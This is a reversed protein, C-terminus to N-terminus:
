GPRRPADDAAGTGARRTERLARVRGFVLSVLSVLLCVLGVMFAHYSGGLEVSLSFAAAAGILLLATPPGVDDHASGPDLRAMDGPAVRSTVRARRSPDSPSAIRAHFNQRM